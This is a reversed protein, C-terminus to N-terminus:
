TGQYITFSVTDNVDLMTNNPAIIYNHPICKVHMDLTETSGGFERRTVTVRVYTDGKSILESCEDCQVKAAM